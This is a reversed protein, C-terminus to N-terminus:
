PRLDRHRGTAPVAALAGLPLITAAGLAVWAVTYSFHAVFLAFLLTVLSGGAIQVGNFLGIALPVEERPIGPLYPALVYMMAYTAGYSLSFVTAVVLLGDLGLFPVTLVLGGSLVTALVLQTRRNTYRETVAGGVPGGFLSPFVFLSAIAGALAPTWGLVIQAYPVFYQGASLSAGELGVFAFGMAWVAPSRLAAPWRARAPAARSPAESPVLPTAIALLVLLIAGGLGLAGRWGIFPIVVASVFVGLAAGASFASSFVGVAVGRRGEPHLGAVLGIAPSFFMAAGAGAVLRSLLLWLFDPAFASALGAAGLVLAGVLAVRRAGWGLALLGSPVQFGGAGVLFGALLVGWEAPGVGFSASISPLSPGVDFWSYAYAVRLAILALTARGASGRLWEPVGVM